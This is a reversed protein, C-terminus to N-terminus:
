EESEDENNEVKDEFAMFLVKGSDSDSNDEDSSSSDERSYLNKKKLWSGKYRKRSRKIRPLNKEKMMTQVKQM